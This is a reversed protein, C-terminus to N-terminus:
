GVERTLIFRSQQNDRGKDAGGSAEARAMVADLKALAAEIRASQLEREHRHASIERAVAETVAKSLESMQSKGKPKASAAPRPAAKAPAPAPKRAHIADLAQMERFEADSMGHGPGDHRTAWKDNLYKRRAAQGPTLEGRAARSRSAALAADIRADAEAKRNAASRAADKAREIPDNKQRELRALTERARRLVEATRADHAM